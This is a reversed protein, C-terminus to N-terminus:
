KKKASKGSRTRNAAKLARANNAKLLDTGRFMNGSTRNASSNASNIQVPLNKNAEARIADRKRVNKKGAGRAVSKEFGKPYSRLGTYMMENGADYSREAKDWQLDRARNIRERTTPKAGRTELGAKPAAKRAVKKVASTSSSTVTKPSVRVVRTTKASNIKVTARAPVEPIRSPEKASKKAINDAIRKETAANFKKRANVTKAMKTATSVAKAARGVPTFSAAIVAASGLKKLGKNTVKIPNNGGARAKAQAIQQKTPKTTKAM